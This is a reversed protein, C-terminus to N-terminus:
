RRGAARRGRRCSTPWGWARARRCLAEGVREGVLFEGGVGVLAADANGDEAAVPQAVRDLEVSEGGAKRGDLDGVRGVGRGWRWRLRAHAAAAVHAPDSLTQHRAWCRAHDAVLRGDCFARVRDLDAALEVRRGVAAPHVSYDNGDLRVYHDRPLRLSSRWGAAPAEPPLPLM